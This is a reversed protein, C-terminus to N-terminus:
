RAAPIKLPARYYAGCSQQAFIEYIKTINKKKKNCFSTM